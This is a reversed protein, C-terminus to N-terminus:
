NGPSESVVTLGRAGFRLEPTAYGASSVSSKVGELTDKDRCLALGFDGGGAGSPKYVGGAAEVVERIALHEPSWIPLDAAEGLARLAGGFDGLAEFLTAADGSSVALAAEEAEMELVKMKALFEGPERQQFADIAALFDATSAPTGTWVPLIELDDPLAVPAAIRPERRYLLVGGSLAAAIDAGSGGGQWARHASQLTAFAESEDPLGGTFEWLAGCVAALAAASSGLGLKCDKIFFASTDIRLTGGSDQLRARREPTLAALAADLLEVPQDSWEVGAASCRFEAPAPDLPLAQVRWSSRDGSVLEGPVLECRARVDVAAVLAPAKDLVAYEGCILLKGPASAIIRSM